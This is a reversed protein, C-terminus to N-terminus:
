NEILALDSGLIASVNPDVQGRGAREDQFPHIPSDSAMGNTFLSNPGFQVKRYSGKASLDDIQLWCCLLSQPIAEKSPRIRRM